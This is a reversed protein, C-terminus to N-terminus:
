QQGFSGALLAPAATRFPGGDISFLGDSIGTGVITGKGVASLNIGTANITVLYGGGVVRFKMKDGRYTTSGDPRVVPKRDYGLVQIDDSATSSTDQVTIEGRDLKGLLSGTANLKLLTANASKVVFTGDGREGGRASAAAPVLLALVVILALKRM